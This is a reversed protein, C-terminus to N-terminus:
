WTASVLPNPQLHIESWEPPEWGWCTWQQQLCWWHQWDAFYGDSVSQHILPSTCAISKIHLLSQIVEHVKQCCRFATSHRCRIRMCSQLPTGWKVFPDGSFIIVFNPVWLGWNWPTGLIKHCRHPYTHLTRKSWATTSSPVCFHFADQHGLSWAVSLACIELNM